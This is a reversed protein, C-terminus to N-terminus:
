ATLSTVECEDYAKVPNGELKSRTINMNNKKFKSALCQQLKQRILKREEEKLHEIKMQDDEMKRNTTEGITPKTEIKKRGLNQENLLKSLQTARLNKEAERLNQKRILEKRKQKNEKEIKANKIESIRKRKEEEIKRKKALEELWLADDKGENKKMGKQAEVLADGNTEKKGCNTRQNNTLKSTDLANLYRSAPPRKNNTRAFAGNIVYISDSKNKVKYLVDVDVGKAHLKLAQDYAFRHNYTGTGPLDSCLGTRKKKKNVKENLKLGSCTSYKLFSKNRPKRVYSKYNTSTEDFQGSNEYTSKFKDGKLKGRVDNYRSFRRTFILNSSIKKIANNRNDRFLATKNIKSRSKTKQHVSSKSCGIINRNGAEPNSLINLKKNNVVSNKASSKVPPRGDNRSKHRDDYYDRDCPSKLIVRKPGINKTSKM